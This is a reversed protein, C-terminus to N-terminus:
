QELGYKEKMYTEKLWNYLSMKSAEPKLKEKFLVVTKCISATM